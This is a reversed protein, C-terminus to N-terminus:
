KTSDPSPLIRFQPKFSSEQIELIMENTELVTSVAQKYFCRGPWGTDAYCGYDLLLISIEFFRPYERAKIMCREPIRLVGNEVSANRVTVVNLTLESPTTYISYKWTIEARSDLNLDHGQDDQIKTVMAPFKLYSTKENFMPGCNSQNEDSATTRVSTRQPLTNCGLISIALCVSLILFTKKTYNM